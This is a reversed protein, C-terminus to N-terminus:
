WKEYHEQIKREGSGWFTVMSMEIICKVELGAALLEPTEWLAAPDLPAMLERDRLHPM